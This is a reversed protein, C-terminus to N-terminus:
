QPDPMAPGGPSVTITADPSANVTPPPDTRKTSPAKGFLFGLATSSLSLMAANWEGPISIAVGRYLAIGMQLFGVIVYAIVVIVAILTASYERFTAPDHDRDPASM